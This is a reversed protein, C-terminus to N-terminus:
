AEQTSAGLLLEAVAEFDSRAPVMAPVGLAMLQMATTSGMAAVRALRRLCEAGVAAVLARAASPSAIVVADPRAEQWADIIEARPRAVTCYAVIDDVSAGWRRLADALERGGELARPLFVRKGPWHDADRLVAILAASGASGATLPRSGGAAVLAAATKEGVAATRLKAPLPRGQRAAMVAAVARQSSVVLWDRHELAAAARELVEPEPPPVEFVVSCSVPELGREILASTLPGDLGEDRTVVVRRLIPRVPSM